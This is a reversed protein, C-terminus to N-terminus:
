DANASAQITDSFYALLDRRKNWSAWGHPFVTSPLDHPRFDHENGLLLRERYALQLDNELFLVTMLCHTAGLYEDHGYIRADLDQLDIPGCGGSFPSDRTKRRALLSM